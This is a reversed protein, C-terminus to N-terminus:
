VCVECHSEKPFTYRVITDHTHLFQFDLPNESFGTPKRFIWHTRPFDM